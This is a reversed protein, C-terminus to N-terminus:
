SRGDFYDDPFFRSDGTNILIASSESKNTPSTKKIASLSSQFQFNKIALLSANRKNQMKNVVPTQCLLNFQSNLTVITTLPPYHHTTPSPYFSLLLSM